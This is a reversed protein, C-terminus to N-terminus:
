ESDDELNVGLMRTAQESLGETSAVPERLRRSPPATPVRAFDGQALRLEDMRFGGLAHRMLVNKKQAKSFQTWCVDLGTPNKFDEAKQLIGQAYVGNARDLLIEVVANEGAKMFRQIADPLVNEPSEDLAKRLEKATELIGIAEGTGEVAREAM